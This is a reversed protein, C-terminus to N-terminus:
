AFVPLNMRKVLARLHNKASHLRSKVTGSPIQVTEAIEDDSMELYYKLELVARHEPTLQQMLEQILDCDDRFDSFEEQEFRLKGNNRTVRQGSFEEDDELSVLREQSKVTKLADNVVIRLFWARFPRTEDYQHIRQYVRIFVEQVVEEALGLDNIIPYAIRVAELQYKRVLIELGRIDGSKLKTIATLEDM